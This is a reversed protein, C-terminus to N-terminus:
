EFTVEVDESTDSGSEFVTFTAKDGTRANGVAECYSGLNGAMPQGNIATILVPSRGFGLQEAQTGPTVSQVVIGNEAPLGLATLGAEGFFGAFEIGMGTFALSTGTELTPVIEKVRDVGIALGEGQIARGGQETNSASNVGVLNGDLDVLPGGSNGPNIAADTRIVNPLGPVDTLLDPDLSESVVSVAGVTSSLNSETSLSAPFGMAVVSEGQDLEGQSGLPVEELGTTDEVKIVALDECVATGVLSAKRPTESGAVEVDLTTHGNVVHNNTVVLGEQVDLVWGTGSSVPGDPGNNIVRLTAPTVQAVVDEVKGEEGGGTLAFFLVVGIAILALAGAGIGVVTATRASRKLMVREMTFGTRPRAPAGVMTGETVGRGFYMETDGITITEGGVLPMPGTIPQGNLYTGNTSGLDEIWMQGDPARHIAAHHRSAKDDQIPFNSGPDRGIVFRDTTVEFERGAQGGSRVSLKL